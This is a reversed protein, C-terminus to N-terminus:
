ISCPHDLLVFCISRLLRLPSGLVLAQDNWYLVRVRLLSFSVLSLDSSYLTFVNRRNCLSNFVFFFPFTLLGLTYNFSAAKGSENLSHKVNHSIQEKSIVCSKWVLVHSSRIPKRLLRLSCFIKSMPVPLNSFHLCSRSFIIWSLYTAGNIQDEGICAVAELVLCHFKVPFFFDQSTM